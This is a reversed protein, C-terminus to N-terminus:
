KASKENKAPKENQKLACLLLFDVVEYGGITKRQVSSLEINNFDKFFASDNKLNDIFKNVLNVEEKELSVVSGELLLEGSSVSLENFWIGNPLNLSLKNLKESWIIRAGALRQIALADQSLMISEEKLSDLTKRHPELEEWKHKLLRLQRNRIISVAGLYLHIFILVGVIIPIFNPIATLDIGFKAGAKTRLKEPLLNIEIM